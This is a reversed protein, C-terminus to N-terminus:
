SENQKGLKYAGLVCLVGTALLTLSAPEPTVSSPGVGTFYFDDDNYNLDSNKAALDEMGVFYGAPVNYGDLTGGAYSAMYAHNIGDASKSAVSAFKGDPSDIYFILQDGANIQGAATGITFETGPTTAKNDLIKGSNYGTQVDYVEIQDEYAATSGLYYANIGGSSTAFILTEPAIVGAHPYPFSDAFASLGPAAALLLLLSFKTRTM